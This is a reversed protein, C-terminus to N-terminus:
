RCYINCYINSDGDYFDTFIGNELEEGDISFTGGQTADTSLFNYLDQDTDTSCFTLDDFSGAEAEEVNNITISIIASDECNENSVSYTTEFTASSATPNNIYAIVQLALTEIAPNFNGNQDIDEDDVLDTFWDIADQPNQFM